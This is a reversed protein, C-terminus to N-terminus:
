VAGEVKTAALLDSWEDPKPLKVEEGSLTADLCFRAFAAREGFTGELGLGGALSRVRAPASRACTAPPHHGPNSRRKLHCRM